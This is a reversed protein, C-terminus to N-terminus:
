QNMSFCPLRVSFTSGQGEESNVTIIGGHQEIVQAVSALGVGTGQIRDTVNQARYFPEFIYPVDIKPIGIGHDRVSVEVWAQNQLQEQQVAVIVQGGQPSYKIANTILNTLVRDLRVFDGRVIIEQAPTLVVIQHRKTTEQLEASVQRLLTMLKVSRMELDLQQGSQLKAVDLLDEVMGAMKTTSSEIVVLRDALVSADPMEGRKMRRQLLQVNGRISALPTKLDHSVSSLFDNRVQLAAEVEAKARQAEELLRVREEEGQKREIGLTVANSISAMADLVAMSLSQRAFLAIVGIVEEDILLPYGAFAVMGERSAWDQDGVRPDGIVQNTLHPLREAAILGIKYMGVPVRSHPGNLHTYLGSSAQLHLVNTAKNLTWIRAFAADLHTVLAQTCQHLSEQLTGGHVLAISIDRTLATLRRSEDIMTRARIWDKQEHELELARTRLREVEELLSTETSESDM